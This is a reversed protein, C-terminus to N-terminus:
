FTNRFASPVIRLGPNSCCQQHFVFMVSVHVSRLHYDVVVICILTVANVLVLCIHGMMLLVVAISVRCVRVNRGSALITPHCHSLWVDHVVALRVVGFVVVALSVLCERVVVEHPSVAVTSLVSQVALRSPLVRVPM